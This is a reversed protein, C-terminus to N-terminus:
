GQRPGAARVEPAADAEFAAFNEVFMRALKRAQQDYAGQDKWTHRPSLVEAPVGPLIRFMSNFTTDTAYPVSDLEGALAARIM